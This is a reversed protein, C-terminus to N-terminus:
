AKRRRAGLMVIGGLGLLALTAPEPIVAVDQGGIVAFGGNFAPAPDGAVVTLVAAVVGGSADLPSAAFAFAGELANVDDVVQVATPSALPSVFFTDALLVGVNPLDSSTSFTQLGQLFTGAFGGGSASTFDFGQIPDEGETTTVVFNYVDVQTPVGGAFASVDSQALDLSGVLAAQASGVTALAVISAGLFNRMKFSNM